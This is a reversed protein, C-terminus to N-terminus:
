RLYGLAKLQDELQKNQEAKMDIATPPALRDARAQLAGRFVSLASRMREGVQPLAALLDNTELPDSEIDYLEGSGSALNLIYKYQDQYYAVKDVGYLTGESYAPRDTPEAPETMLPLLSQGEFSEPVELGLVDFITPLIDIQRVRASVVSRAPRYRAPLKIILPVRILEQYMTHGHEFGDHDWFEEGHDAIIVMMTREYLGLARLSDVLRGIQRDMFLIEADYEGRLYKREPADPILREGIMKTIQPVTLTRFPGKYGEAFMEEFEGPPDYNLHPDFLHLFLFTNKRQNNEFFRVAADVSADARRIQQNYGPNFDYRVFGRELGLTPDLFGANVIAHTKFQHETLVEAGHPVQERSRYFTTTDRGTFKGAAGHITAYTSTLVSTVAPLTWCSQAIAQDFRTGEAAIQDMRPTVPRQAGYCGFSDRRTTDVLIVVVHQADDRDPFQGGGPQTNRRTIVWGVVLLVLVLVVIKGAVGGRSSGAESSGKGSAEAAGPDPPDTSM